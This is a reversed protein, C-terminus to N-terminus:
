VVQTVGVVASWHPHCPEAQWDHLPSPSPQLAIPIQVHPVPGIHAVPWCQTPPEHTQSAVEQLPHQSWDPAQWGPLEFLAQPECPAIHAGHRVWVHLPPVHALQPIADQEFPHQEPAVQM